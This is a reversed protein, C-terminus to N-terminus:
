NLSSENKNTVSIKNAIIKEFGVTMKQLEHIKLILDETKKLERFNHRM